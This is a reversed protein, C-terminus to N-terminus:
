DDTDDQLAILLSPDPGDDDDDDADGHSAAKPANERSKHFTLDLDEFHQREDHDDATNEEDQQENLGRGSMGELVTRCQRAAELEAGIACILLKWDHSEAERHHCELSKIADNAADLMDDLGTREAGTHGASTTAMYRKLRQEFISIEDIVLRWIQAGDTLAKQEYDAAALDAQQVSLTEARKANAREVIEAAAPKVKLLDAMQRHVAQLDQNYRSLTVDIDDQIHKAEKRLDSQTARLQALQEAVKDIQPQMYDARQYLDDMEARRDDKPMEPAKQLAHKKRNLEELRDNTAQQSDLDASLLDCEEGKLVALKCITTYLVRRIQVVSLSALADDQRAQRNTAGGSLQAAQADLLAQVDTQVNDQRRKCWSTGDACSRHRTQSTVITSAIIPSPVPSSFGPSRM